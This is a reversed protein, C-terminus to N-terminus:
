NSERFVMKSLDVRFQHRRGLENRAPLLEITCGDLGLLQRVIYLGLGQGPGDVPKESVFLDFLSDELKPEVGPGNDLVVFGTADILVRIERKGPPPVDDDQLWYRSNTVLNELVQLLRNRNMSVTVAEEEVVNVSIGEREFESARAAVYKEVFDRLPIKEKVARTRPLMPDIQSAAGTITRRALDIHRLHPMVADAHETKRILNRVAHTSREIETLHTHIEHTLGRAALGVAASEVLAAVQDSRLEIQQAVITSAAALDRMNDIDETLKEITSIGSRALAIARSAQEESFLPGQAKDLEDLENRQTDVLNSAKESAADIAKVTNKITTIASPTTMNTAGTQKQETLKAYEDLGRRVDEQAKNAFKKCYESVALFGRYYKDEVFNERDSKETLMYNERGSLAFYGATNDVRLHYSSGSTMSRALDLWDEGARVRFGDRLIAVGKLRKFKERTAAEGTVSQGSKGFNFYYLAGNFSGPNGIQSTSGKVVKSFPVSENLVIIWDQKTSVKAEDYKKLKRSGILGDQDEIGNLWNLFAQGNDDGFAREAREITSSKENAAFFLSRRFRAKMHLEAEGDDDVEFEFEFDSVAQNLLDNTVQDMEYAQGDIRVSVPFTKVAEFPSVISAISYSLQRAREKNRWESIDNLGYIIIETGSFDDSNPESSIEVPIRDLTEAGECDKWRFWAVSIKDDGKQASRLLLIDGLRMTGLRGLGKDGLPTRGKTTEPKPKGQSVRKVSNSVVLWSDEVSKPSLGTGKDRVVISGTYRLRRIVTDEDKLDDELSVSVTEADECFSRFKERPGTQELEGSKNTDIIIECRPSDADYANKVLELLAQEPDTVLERGLQTLVHAGVRLQPDDAAQHSTNNKNNM